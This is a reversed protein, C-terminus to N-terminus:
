RIQPGGQASITGAHVTYETSNLLVTGGNGRETADARVVAGPAIGARQSLRRSAAGNPTVGIAITGGGTRGSANVRATPASTTRQAM